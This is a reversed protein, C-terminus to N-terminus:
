YLSKVWELKIMTGLVDQSTMALVIASFLLRKTLSHENEGLVYFFDSTNKSPSTPNSRFMPGQSFNSINSTNNISWLIRCFKHSFLVTLTTKTNIKKVFYPTPQPSPTPTTYRSDNGKQHVNVHIISVHINSINM